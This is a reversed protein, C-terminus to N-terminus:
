FLPNLMQTLSYDRSIYSGSLLIYPLSREQLANLYVDYLRDRDKSNERFPDYEWKIDPKCLVYKRDKTASDLNDLIYPCVKDFKEMSWIYLTLIDTDLIANLGRLKHEEALHLRAIKEIDEFGYEPGFTELYSRAIEELHKTDTRQALYASAYSKGSSEPGTFVIFSM